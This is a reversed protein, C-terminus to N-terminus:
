GVQGPGYSGAKRQILRSFAEGNCPPVLHVQATENEEDDDPRRDPDKKVRRAVAQRARPRKPRERKPDDRERPIQDLAPFVGGARTEIRRRRAPVAPPIASLPSLVPSGSVSNGELVVRPAPLNEITSGLYLRVM